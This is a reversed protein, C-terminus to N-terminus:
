EPHHGLLQGVGRRRVRLEGGGRGANSAALGGAAHQAGTGACAVSARSYSAVITSSAHAVGVLGGAGGAASVSGTSWAASIRGLSRGALAGVADRGNEVHADALGLATVRAGSGFAAFLGSHDRDRNVFLNFITRGNGDFVANYHTADSPASAPGIPDWGSGGNHYDDGGDSAGDSHTAGDGDTDFDLDAALEYGKCAAAGAAAPCGMGAAANPFASAYTGTAAAAAAGDGDLDWRVANLQALSAIEILGDEDTDYDTGTREDDSVAM